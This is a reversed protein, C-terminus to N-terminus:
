GDIKIKKKKPFIRKVTKFKFKEQPVHEKLFSVFEDFNETKERPFYYFIAMVAYIYVFNKRIVVAEIKKYEHIETLLTEGGKGLFDVSVSEDGFELRAGYVGQKDHDSKWGAISTWVFLVVTLLLVLITVGFLILIIISDALFYLLLAALLLFALLLIERLGFYRRMYYMSCKYYEKKDSKMELKM